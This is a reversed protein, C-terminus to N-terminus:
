KKISEQVENQFKNVYELREFIYKVTMPILEIFKEKNDIGGVCRIYMNTMSDAIPCDVDKLEELILLCLSLFSSYNYTKNEIQNHIYEDDLMDNMRENPVGFVKEFSERIDSVIGRVMKYDENELDEKFSEWFIRKLNNEVMKSVTEDYSVARPKYIEKYANYGDEGVLEVIGNKVKLQLGKLQEVYETYEDTQSLSEINNSYNYYLEFYIKLQSELDKTKWANFLEVFSFCLEKDFEGKDLKNVVVDARDKLQYELVTYDENGFIESHFFSIMYSSLLERHKIDWNLSTLINRTVANVKRDRLVKTANEFDGNKIKVFLNLERFSEM